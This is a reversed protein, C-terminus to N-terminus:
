ETSATPKGVKVVKPDKWTGSVLYEYSAIQGLPDKLAKQVLLATLGVAPGGLFAGALSVGEGLAPTVHVKLRQTERALDTEGSITVKAAPGSMRFNDSAAVGQQIRVNASIDDFAFGESFVDRFDLTIRRPLAQLSLIGLLKGLGPDVKMFQGGHAELAFNGTLSAYDPDSPAGEWSVQGELKASGRKISDPQDFRTMFKGLDGVELKLNVRTLAQGGLQWLGDMQLNSDPNSLRLKEIRWAHPQQSATLELKGLKRQRVQFNEAVVDLAPLDSEAEEPAPMGLKAPAAAPITLNKFRATLKSRGQPLSQWNLEGALDKASLNARWADQQSWANLRLDSFRRGFADLTNVTVNAGALGLKSKGNGQALVSRWHDLDLYRLTGNLWLGSHAPTSVPAGLSITGREVQMKQGESRRLLKAGAIQGYSITVSDQQASLIKKELRLPVADTAKKNLPQPLDSALGLLNSEVVFDALKKRLMMVGRWDATGRLFQAYPVINAKRLGQASLRGQAIIRITGDQQTAANITAPGGMIQAAAHQVSVGAETFQLKGTAAEVPPIDEGALIRNGLFQYVGAVKSQQTNRLPIHLKLDLKGNGTAQMGETFGNIMENVPSREIFKLFEGTPGQAEGEIELREEFVLLDPISVRVKPLKAGFINGQQTTVLMRKGEFLLDGAINDIKPWGTAYDLSGGSIRAAVQFIGQKGDAYPFEALNGKLRFRVDNSGGALFATDLWDRASKGVTLPIYKGVKRADARNFNATLDIFGPTGKVTRYTGFATGALDANALSANTLRFEHGQGTSKWAIQATLADIELPARFVKPLELRAVRSDLSLTGGKQNGDLYGSIGSFGPQREYTKMGLNNFRGKAGYEGPQKWDGKWHVMFERFGGRPAIQALKERQEPALPLYGALALLPELQLNDTVVEGEAPKSGQASLLRARFDVPGIRTGDRLNLRLKAIALEDGTRQASGLRGGLSIPLAREKFHLWGLRGAMEQVDMEPLDAALRLRVGSLQVDATAGALSGSVLELWAQGGGSGGNIGYPLTLWSRWASIDTRELRAYVRGHWGAFDRLTEGELEGRLDLPSALATPPIAYLGFDHRTGANEMRLNVQQFVLPPAGRMEDQWLLTANRLLINEQRLVWDVFGSEQDPQNVAIGAVFILGSAERRVALNIQRIQLSHLRLEGALVTRWSLVNELSQLYLAPRGRKDYIQVDRLMLRPRLGEWGASLSGIDVRQGAARSISTAIETRYQSVNPLLWYRLVLVLALFLFAATFAAYRAIRLFNSLTLTM